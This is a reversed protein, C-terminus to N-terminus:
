GQPPPPVPPQRTRRWLLAAVAFVAVVLVIAGAVLVASPQTGAPPASGAPRMTILGWMQPEDLTFRSRYAFTGNRDATFNWTVNGSFDPSSPENGDRNADGDYDVYWNHTLGDVSTLTLTVNDGEDVLLTPGPTDLSTNTHGWGAERSGYLPYNVNRAAGALIGIGSSALLLCALSTAVFVRQRISMVRGMGPDAWQLNGAMFADTGRVHLCPFPCQ